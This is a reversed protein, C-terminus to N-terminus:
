NVGSQMDGMCTLCGDDIDEACERDEDEKPIVKDLARVAARRIAEIDSELLPAIYPISNRCGLDGLVEVAVAKGRYRMTPSGLTGILSDCCGFRKLKDKIFLLKEEDGPDSEDLSGAIDVMAHVASEERLASLGELAVLKEDWDDRKLMDMLVDSFGKLSSPAGARVISKAVSEKEIGDAKQMHGVLAEVADSSGIEGLTEIAAYRVAESPSNLLAIIRDVSSECKMLAATELASFVVWEEDELAHMLQPLADEYHLLGIAKAASARVNPNPDNGLVYVLEEPYGCEKIECVLDVAFKRVDDDRDKLLTKLLCVSDAGIEKLIIMATNRLYAGDRLLPLVMYATVEGGINILSRMAADQVGANDDRLAKILPYVAREDGASLTEAASRRKAPDHHTIDMKAKSLTRIGLSM